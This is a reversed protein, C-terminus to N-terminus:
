ERRYIRKAADQTIIGRGAEPRLSEADGLVLCGGEALAATLKECVDKQTKEEFYIIVNRCLVLDFTGFVSEPPAASEPSTLDQSSFSVMERLFPRARFGDGRPFFYKDLQGLTVNLLSERAFIGERATDLASSDMDTAFVRLTWEPREKAVATHALIAASYAEEGRACGASWVRLERSGEARRREVIEPLVQARLTEFIWPDRFFESVNIAITNVLEGCERSDSKLLRLYDEPGDARVQAMRNSIRRTLMPRRYRSLDPGEAARVREIVKDVISAAPLPPEDNAFPSNNKTMVSLPMRNM